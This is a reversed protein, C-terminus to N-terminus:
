CKCMHLSCLVTAKRLSCVYIYTGVTLYVWKWVQPHSLVCGSCLVTVKGLLVYWDGGQFVHLGKFSYEWFQCVVLAFWKTFARCNSILTKWLGMHQWQHPRPLFSPRHFHARSLTRPNWRQGAQKKAALLSAAEIAHATIYPMSWLDFIVHRLSWLHFDQAVTSRWCKM